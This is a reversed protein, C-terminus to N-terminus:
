QCLNTGNITAARRSTSINRRCADGNVEAGGTSVSIRATPAMDGNVIVAGREDPYSFGVFVTRWKTCPHSEGDDLDYCTGIYSEQETEYPTYASFYVNEGVDANVEIRGAGISVRVDDRVTPRYEYETGIIVLGQSRNFTYQIRKGRSDKEELDSLRGYDMRNTIDPNDMEFAYLEDSAVTCIPANDNGSGEFVTGRTLDGPSLPDNPDCLEITRPMVSSVVKTIGFLALSGAAIAVTIATIPRRYYFEKAQNIKNQIVDVVQYLADNIQNTISKM